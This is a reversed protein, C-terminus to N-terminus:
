DESDDNIHKPLSVEYNIGEFSSKNIREFMPDYYIVWLLPCISGGQDIGNIVNYQDGISDQFLVSNKRDTFLNLIFTILNNPIGIRLLARQLLSIEVRDYAKSLDQIMIYLKKKLQKAATIDMGSVRPVKRIPVTIKNFFIM